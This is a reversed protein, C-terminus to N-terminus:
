GSAPRLSEVRPPFPASTAPFHGLFEDLEDVRLPPPMPYREPLAALAPRHRMTAGFDWPFAREDVGLTGGSEAAYREAVKRWEAVPAQGVSLLGNSFLNVGIQRYPEVGRLYRELLDLLFRRHVAALVTRRGPAADLVAGM